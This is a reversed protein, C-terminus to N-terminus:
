VNGEGYKPVEIKEIPTYASLTSAGYPRDGVKWGHEIMDRVEIMDEPVVEEKQGAKRIVLREIFGTLFLGPIVVWLSAWGLGAFYAMGVLLALILVSLIPIFRQLETKHRNACEECILSRVQASLFKFAQRRALFDQKEEWDVLIHMRTTILKAQARRGCVSCVDPNKPGVNVSSDRRLWGPISVKRQETM